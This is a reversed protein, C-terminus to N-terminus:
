KFKMLGLFPSFPCLNNDGKLSHPMFTSGLINFMYSYETNFTLEKRYAFLRPGGVPAARTITCRVGLDLVQKRALPEWQQQSVVM